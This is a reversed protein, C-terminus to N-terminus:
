GFADDLVRNRYVPDVAARYVATKHDGRHQSRVARELEAEVARKWDRKVEDTIFQDPRGPFEFWYPDDGTRTSFSGWESIYESLTDVARSDSPLMLGVIGKGLYATLVYRKNVIVPLRHGRSAPMTLALCSDDNDLGITDLLEAVLDLYDTLWRRSPAKRVRTVLEEHETEDVPSSERVLHDLSADIEPGTASMSPTEAREDRPKLRDTYDHLEDEEVPETRAWLQGFWEQLEAVHETQHFLVGMEANEGLGAKTFNASGVLAHDETVISKAHLGRCDHIREQNQQIFGLVEERASASQTRVWEQADTVLRWSEAAATIQRLIDLHLYPCTIEVAADRVIRAIRKDFSSDASEDNDLPHYLLEVDM